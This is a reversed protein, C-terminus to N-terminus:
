LIKKGQHYSYLKIGRLCFLREREGALVLARACITYTTVSTGLM